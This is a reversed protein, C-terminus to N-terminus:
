ATKNEEILEIGQAEMWEDVVRKSEDRCDGMEGLGFDPNNMLSDYIGKVLADYKSKSLKM